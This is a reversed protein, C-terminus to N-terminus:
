TVQLLQKAAVGHEILRFIQQEVFVIPRDLHRPRIADHKRARRRVHDPDHPQGLLVFRRQHASAGASPEGATRDRPAAPDDSRERSHIANEFHIRFILARTHLGAQHIRIQAKGNLMKPQMERGIRRALLSARDAAIDGLIGAPRVRQSITHRRIMYERELNYQRAALENMKAAGRKIRGAVIEGPKENTGLPSERKDGFNSYLERPQRLRRFRQERDVFGHIVCRLGNDLNGRAADRRGRAFHHVAPRNARDLIVDM